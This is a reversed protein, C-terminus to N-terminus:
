KSLLTIHAYYKKPLFKLSIEYGIWVHHMCTVIFPFTVLLFHWMLCAAAGFLLKSRNTCQWIKSIKPVFKKFSFEISGIDGHDAHFIHTNKSTRTQLQYSHHYKIFNRQTFAVFRDIYDILTISWHLRDIATCTRM